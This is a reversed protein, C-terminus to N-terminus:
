PRKKYIVRGKKLADRLFRSLPTMRKLEDDTYAIIDCDVERDIEDYIKEM